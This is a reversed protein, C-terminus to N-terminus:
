HARPTAAIEPEELLALVIDKEEVGQRILDDTIGHEIGDYELVVKGDQLTIYILNGRVRRGRAQMLAYRDHTKDLVTDLRINRHSPRFRAYTEIVHKVVIRYNETDM